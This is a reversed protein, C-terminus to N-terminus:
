PTATGDPHDYADCSEFYRAIVLEAASRYAGLSHPHTVTPPILRELLWFYRRNAADQQSDPVDVKSQQYYERIEQAIAQRLGSDRKDLFDDIVSVQYSLASLQHSVPSTLGNFAIKEDFDPATGKFFSLRGNANDALATLLESVARYDIFTPTGAPIGGIIDQRKDLTLQMFLEMLEKMSFGRASSLRKDKELQQLASAIPAPIGQFRDNMVFSYHRIDKWKEPLKAFDDIAKKLATTESDAASTTPKPGYVQYYHGEEPIWGDNGGDGWNGWPVIPQFRTDTYGMVDSFLRQFEEGSARSIRRDFLLRCYYDDHASM